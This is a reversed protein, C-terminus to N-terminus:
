LRTSMVEQGLAQVILESDSALDPVERLREDIGGTASTETRAAVGDAHQPREAVGKAGVEDEVGAEIAAEGGGDGLPLAEGAEGVEEGVPEPRMPVCGTPWGM